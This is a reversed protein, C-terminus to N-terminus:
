GYAGLGFFLNKKLWRYVPMTEPMEEGPIHHSPRPQSRMLERFADRGSTDRVGQNRLFNVLDQPCELIPCGRTRSSAFQQFSRLFASENITRFLDGENERITQRAFSLPPCLEIDGSPGIHYGLGLAAPCVARGDADWYTDIIIIPSTRRLALLRKRVDLIQERNLALEPTPDPGVPRYIYYWLYTAGNQDVWRVYDPSLVEQLNQATITTAVGFLVKGKRLRQLAEKIAQFCGEGRREDNTKEFGDISVLITANGANKIASVATDDVLMANTIIQFYCDRNRRLVAWIDKYLFPEGGLLVFFRDGHHKAQDIFDNVEDITLERPRGQSTIWCGHCQLNCADTLSLFFFPPFLQSKALRKRFRSVSRLGPIIWLRVAQLLLRPSVRAVLRWAFRSLFTM